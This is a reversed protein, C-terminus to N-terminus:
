LTAEVCYHATVTRQSLSLVAQGAGPSGDTSPAQWGYCQLEIAPTAITAGADLLAPCKGDVKNVTVGTGKLTCVDVTTPDADLDAYVSVRVEYVRDPVADGFAVTKGCTTVGSSQVFFENDQADLSRKGSVPTSDTASIAGSVDILEAVYTGGSLTGDDDQTCAAAVPFDRSDVAVLTKADSTLTATSTSSCAIFSPLLAFTLIATARLM